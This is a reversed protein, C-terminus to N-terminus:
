AKTGVSHIPNRRPFALETALAAAKELSVSNEALHPSEYGDGTTAVALARCALQRATATNASIAEQANGIMRDSQPGVEAIRSM